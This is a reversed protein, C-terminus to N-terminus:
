PAGNGIEGSNPLRQTAYPRLSHTGPFAQRRFSPLSKEKTMGLSRLVLGSHRHLLFGDNRAFRLLGAEKRLLFAPNSRRKAGRLSPPSLLARCFARRTSM